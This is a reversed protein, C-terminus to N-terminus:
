KKFRETLGENIVALVRNENVYQLNQKYFPIPVASPKTYMVVDGAKVFECKVGAEIVTAVTILNEELEYNGNDPNKFEPQLGGLDEYLGSETEVLRQFPNENFPRVILNNQVPYIELNNLNNVCYKKYDDLKKAYENLRNTYEDVKANFRSAAENVLKKDATTDNVTFHQANGEVDNALRALKENENWNVREMIVM